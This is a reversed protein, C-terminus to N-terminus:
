ECAETPCVPPFAHACLRLCLLHLQLSRRPRPSCSRPIHSFAAAHRFCLRCPPVERTIGTLELIRKPVPPLAPSASSDRALYLPLPNVLTQLATYVDAQGAGSASSCGGKALVVAAVDIVRNWKFSLGTTEVDVVAWEIDNLPTTDCVALTAVQMAPPAPPPEVRLQNCIYEKLANFNSSYKASSSRGAQV